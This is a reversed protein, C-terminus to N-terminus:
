CLSFKILFWYFSSWILFWRHCKSPTPSNTVLVSQAQDQLQDLVLLFQVLDLPVQTMLLQYPQHQVQHLLLPLSQSLISKEPLHFLYKILLYEFDENRMWGSSSRVQSHFEHDKICTIEVVSGVHGQAGVEGDVNGVQANSNHGTLEVLICIFLQCRQGEPVRQQFDPKREWSSWSARQLSPCSSCVGSPSSTSLSSSSSPSLSLVSYRKHM